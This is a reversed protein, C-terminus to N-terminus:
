LSNLMKKFKQNPFMRSEDIAYEEKLGNVFYMDIKGKNKAEIKGRYTCDFYDKIAEYTAGSINVKGVEGATEMRAAINVTDGWVDYAFKRKGVVGAIVPGTHIGLRLKWQPLERSTLNETNNMFHQIELGALLVDFQNSRNRIPIGGVCMYADGITKIKEIYHRTIIDDFEAFYTHLAKVLEKPSLKECSKTFGKFDTFMVTTMRYNRPRASGTTKLQFAVNEPLINLLIKETKQKEFEVTQKEKEIKIKEKEILLKEQEIEQKEETIEKNQQEQFSNLEQLKQAFIELSENREKLEREAEKIKTIDAEVAIISKISGNSNQIPTLRSQVWIFEGTRTEFVTQYTEPRKTEIVEKIIGQSDLTESQIFLYNGFAKRYDELTYKYMRHFGENVWEIEGTPSLLVISNDTEKTILSLKELEIMQQQIKEKQHKIKRFSDYLLLSSKVRALLEIKDVPKRIYDVAGADLAEQLKDSSTLGTAMIVPIERLTEDSKLQKLAEIGNMVPMEWDLIIMDPCEKDALECAIRGNAAKLVTYKENSLRLMNTTVALTLKEDDAVLIKHSM